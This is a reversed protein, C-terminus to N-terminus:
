VEALSRNVEAEILDVAAKVGGAQFFSNQLDPIPEVFTPDNLVHEIAARLAASSFIHKELILGVGADQVRMAMDFQDAFMPIGVIPTGSAISEQVSNIGCHSIFVRVNPHQLISLPPPGWTQIRLHPPLSESVLQRLDPHLIWWVRFPAQIFADFIRHVLDSSAITITGLNVYVVPLDSELWQEDEQSLPLISSPLMPGLMNINAPLPRPYELGFAGNVMVPYQGWARNINIKGLGRTARLTNLKAGITTESLIGALWRLCPYTWPAHWPLHHISHGLFPMPVDYALPLYAISIATLLCPNNIVAPIEEAEAVDLAARTVFDAIIIDPPDQRVLETLSDFFFPWLRFLSNVIWLSTKLFSKEQSVIQRFRTYDGQLHAVSGLNLFEIGQSSCPDSEVFAKVEQTSAIGVRWGRRALEEAQRLLPNLHGIFPISVFLAFKKGSM